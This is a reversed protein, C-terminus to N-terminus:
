RKRYVACIDYNGFRYVEEYNETLFKKGGNLYFDDAAQDIHTLQGRWPARLIALGGKKLLPSLQNIFISSSEELHELVDLCMILDAQKDTKYELINGNSVNPMGYKKIIHDRFISVDNPVDLLVLENKIKNNQALALSLSGTGCGYDIIKEAHLTFESCVNYNEFWILQNVINACVNQISAEDNWSEYFIKLTEANNFLATETEEWKSVNQFFEEISLGYFGIADDVIKSLSTFVEVRNELLNIRPNKLIKAVVKDRFLKYRALQNYKWEPLM